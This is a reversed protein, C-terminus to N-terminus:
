LSQAQMQIELAHIINMSFQSKNQSKLEFSLARVNKIGGSSERISKVIEDVFITNM